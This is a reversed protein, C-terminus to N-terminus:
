IIDSVALAWNCHGALKVVGGDRRSSRLRRAGGDGLLAVRFLGIGCLGGRHGVCLWLGRGDRRLRLLGGNDVDPWQELAEPGVWRLLVDGRFLDGVGKREDERVVQAGHLGAGQECAEVERSPVAAGVHQGLGRGDHAAGRGLNVECFQAIHDGALTLRFPSVKASKYTKKKSRLIRTYDDAPM